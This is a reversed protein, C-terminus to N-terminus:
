AAFKAFVRTSRCDDCAAARQKRQREAFRDTQAMLDDVTLIATTPVCERGPGTRAVAAARRGALQGTRAPQHRGALRGPAAFRMVELPEAHRRSRPLSQDWACFPCRRNCPQTIRWVVIV